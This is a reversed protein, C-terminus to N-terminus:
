LRDSRSASSGANGTAAVAAINVPLHFEAAAINYNFSSPPPPHTGVMLQQSTAVASTPKDSKDVPKAPLASMSPTTLVTVDTEASRVTIYTSEPERQLQTEAVSSDSAAGGDLQSWVPLTPSSRPLLVPDALRVSSPSGPMGAVRNRSSPMASYAGSSTKQNGETRRRCRQEYALRAEEKTRNINIFVHDSVSRDHSHRLWKANSVIWQVEEVSSLMVLLPRTRGSKPEGLRKCYAINSKMDFEADILQSVVQKDTCGDRTSLGSVVISKARRERDRHDQQIASHVIEKFSQKAVRNQQSHAAQTRSRARGSSAALSSGGAETAASASLAILQVTDNNSDNNETDPEVVPNLPSIGLFSLVFSMQMLMTDLIGQQKNVQGADGLIPKSPTASKMQQGLQKMDAELQSFREALESISSQLKAGQSRM